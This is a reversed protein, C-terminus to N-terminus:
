FSKRTHLNHVTRCRNTIGASIQFGEQGSKYDRDWNSVEKGRNSIRAGIQLRKVGIQFGKLQEQKYDRKGQNTIGLVLGSMDTALALNVNFGLDDKAM